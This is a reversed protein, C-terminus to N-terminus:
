DVAKEDPLVESIHENVVVTVESQRTADAIQLVGYLLVAGGCTTWFDPLTDVGVLVAVITGVVPMMTQVSGVVVNPLFKLAAICSVTGLFGVVGGLYLGLAIRDSKMWGLAGHDSVSFDTGSIIASAMSFLFSNLASIPMMMVFLPIRNRLQKCLDLFVIAGLSSMVAIGDGLFASGNGAWISPIQMLLVGALAIRAGFSEGASVEKAKNRFLLRRGLAILVIVLAHVNNLSWAHFLTTYDIALFFGSAWCVQAVSAAIILQFSSIDWFRDREEDRMTFYQFVAFPLMLLTQCQMLWSAAIMGAVNPLWKVATGQSAVSCLAIALIVYGVWSVQKTVNMAVTANRVSGHIELTSDVEVIPPILNTISEVVERATDATTGPESEVARDEPPVVLVLERLDQKSDVVPIFLGTNTTVSEGNPVACVVQQNDPDNKPGRRQVFAASKSYSHSRCFSLDLGRPLLPAEEDVQKRILPWSKIYRHAHATDEEEKFPVTIAFGTGQETRSTINPRPTYSHPGPQINLVLAEDTFLQQNHNDLSVTLPKTSPSPIPDTSSPDALSSRLNAPTLTTNDLSSIHAAVSTFDIQMLPLM